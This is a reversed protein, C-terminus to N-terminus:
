PEATRRKMWDSPTVRPLQFTDRTRGYWGGGGMRSVLRMRHADVHYRLTDTIADDQVHIFLVRGIIIVSKPGVELKIMRECELSVPSDAIRPPKVRVSPLLGVEAMKLEDIDPEFEAATINMAEIQKEAVLNVVFEGTQQINVTTDHVRTGHRGLGLGVLPPEDSLVNFFSFPAANLKGVPDRTVTWAIPRPIIIATLLRATENPRLNAVDIQM